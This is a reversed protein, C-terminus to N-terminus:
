PALRRELDRVRAGLLDSGADLTSVLDRAEASRGTEWLLLALNFRSADDRPTEALVGRLLAESEELRSERYAVLAGIRRAWLTNRQDAPLAAHLTRLTELRDAGLASLLTWRMRDDADLRTDVDRVVGLLDDLSSELSGSREVPAAPAPLRAAEAAVFGTLSREALATRVPHLADDLLRNRSVTTTVSVALAIVLLLLAPVAVLTPRPGRRISVDAVPGTLGSLEVGRLSAVDHYAELCTTCSSLHRLESADVGDPGHDVIAAIITPDLHATAM